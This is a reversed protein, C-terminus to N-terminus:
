QILKGSELRLNRNMKAALSESHTVLLITVGIENNMNKLLEGLIDANKSDLSGTPEDALLIRPNNALARVLAVRQAEGGSIQFPHKSSLEKIGTQMMFNNIHEKRETLESKTYGSALLPLYINEIVSLHPLLMHDQFIFGVNRNRYVAAEDETFQGIDTGEFLVKGNDPRDLLGIINLLTTKGSGSPGMIAISEGQSIELQLEDLVTGRRAFSKTVRDVLLM